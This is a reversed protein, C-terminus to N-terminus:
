KVKREYYIGAVMYGMRKLVSSYDFYPTVTRYIKDIGEKGLSEDCWKMFKIGCGRHNKRVFLVQQNAIRLSKCIIDNTIIFIGYGVLERDKRVTFVRLVEADDLAKYRDYDPEFNINGHVPIEEYHEKMLTVAEQWGEKILESGFVVNM